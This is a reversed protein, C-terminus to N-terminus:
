NVALVCTILLKDARLSDRRVPVTRTECKRGKSESIAREPPSFISSGKSERECAAFAGKEPKM